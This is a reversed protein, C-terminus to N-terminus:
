VSLGSMQISFIVRPMEMFSRPNHVVGVTQFESKRTRNNKDAEVEMDKVLLLMHNGQHNTKRTLRAPIQVGESM